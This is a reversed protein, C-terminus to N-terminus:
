TFSLHDFSKIGRPVVRLSLYSAIPYNMTSSIAAKGLRNRIHNGVEVRFQKSIKPFDKPFDSRAKSSLV